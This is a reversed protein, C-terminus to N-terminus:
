LPKGLADLVVTNLGYASGYRQQALKMGELVDAETPPRPLGIVCLEGKGVKKRFGWRIEGGSYWSSWVHAGEVDKHQSRIGQYAM